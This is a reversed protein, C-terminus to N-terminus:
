KDKFFNTKYDSNELKKIIYEACKHAHEITEFAYYTKNRYLIVVWFGYEKIDETPILKTCENWGWLKGKEKYSILPIYVSGDNTEIKDILYDINKISTM